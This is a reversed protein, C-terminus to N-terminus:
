GNDINQPLESDDFQELVGYKNVTTVSNQKNPPRNIKPKKGTQKSASPPSDNSSIHKRRSPVPPPTTTHQCESITASESEISLHGHPTQSSQSQLTNINSIDQCSKATSLAALQVPHEASLPWTLDTQCSSSVVPTTRKVDTAASVSRAAAAYRSDLVGSALNGPVAVLKRAEAFSIGRDTKVKQIEKEQKWKPCDRSSAMHNGSCNACNEAKMCFENSHGKEGCRGCIKDGKCSRSGHGFKQCNYCRLPNPIFAAVTVRQYDNLKVYKPPSSRAFTLIVTNTKRQQGTLRDRVTISFADTVGQDALERIIEEKDCRALDRDRIVGKCTNLTRHATCQVPFEGLFKLNILLDHYARTENEILISGNQLTKVSKLTGVACKLAKGLVFPSIKSLPKDSSTGEIILWRPFSESILDHVSPSNHIQMM